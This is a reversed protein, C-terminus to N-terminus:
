LKKKRKIEEQIKRREEETQVPGFLGRGRAQQQQIIQEQSSDLFEGDGDVFHMEDNSDFVFRGGGVNRNGTHKYHKRSGPEGASSVDYKHTGDRHFGNGNAGKGRKQNRGEQSFGDMDSSQRESPGRAIDKRSGKRYKRKDQGYNKGGGNEQVSYEEEESSSSSSEDSHKGNKEKVSGKVLARYALYGLTASAVM